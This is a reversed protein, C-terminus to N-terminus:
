ILTQTLFNQTFNYINQTRLESKNTNKKLPTKPFPFHPTYIKINSGELTSIWFSPSGM